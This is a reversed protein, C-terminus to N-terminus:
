VEKTKKQICKNNIYQKYSLIKCNKFNNELEEKTWYLWLCELELTPYIYLDCGIFKNGENIVLFTDKM